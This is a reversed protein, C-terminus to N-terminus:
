IYRNEVFNWNTPPFTQLLKKKIEKDLIKTRNKKLQIKPDTKPNRLILLGLLVLSSMRKAFIDTEFKLRKGGYM